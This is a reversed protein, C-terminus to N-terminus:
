SKIVKFDIESGSMSQNLIGNKYKYTKQFDLLETRNKGTKKDAIAVLYEPEVDDYILTFKKGTEKLDVPNKYIHTLNNHTDYRYIFSYIGLDKKILINGDRYYDVQEDVKISSIVGNKLIVTKLLKGDKYYEYGDDFERINYNVKNDDTEISIIEDYKINKTITINGRHEVEVNGDIEYTISRGNEIKEIVRGSDDYIKEATEIEDNVIVSYKSINGNKDYEFTNIVDNKFGLEVVRNDNDYKVSIMDNFVTEIYQNLSRIKVKSNDLKYIKNRILFDKTDENCNLVKIIEKTLKM